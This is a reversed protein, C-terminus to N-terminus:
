TMVALREFCLLTIDDSQPCGAAHQRVAAIIEEGARRAGRPVRPILKYLRERGFCRGSADMAETLGDTYLM